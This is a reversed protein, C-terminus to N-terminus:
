LKEAKEIAAYAREHNARIRQRMDVSAADLGTIWSSHTLEALLTNAEKLAELLMKNEEQPAAYLPQGNGEDWRSLHWDSEWLNEDNIFKRQHRWAVPQAVPQALAKALGDAIQKGTVRRQVNWLEPEKAVLEEWSPDPYGTLWESAPLWVGNENKTLRYVSIPEQQPVPQAALMAEWQADRAAIVARIPMTGSYDWVDLIGHIQEDSLPEPKM